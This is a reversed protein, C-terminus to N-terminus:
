ALAAQSGARTLEVDADMLAEEGLIEEALDEDLLGLENLIAIEAQVEEDTVAQALEIAGGPVTQLSVPTVPSRLVLVSGIVLVAMVPAWAFSVATSRRPTEQRLTLRREVSASFGKLMGESVRQDRLPKMQSMFKEDMEKFQEDKM